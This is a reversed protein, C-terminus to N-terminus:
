QDEIPASPWIQQPYEVKPQEGSATKPQQAKPPVLQPGPKERPESQVRKYIAVGRTGYVQLLFAVFALYVLTNPNFNHNHLKAIDRLNKAYDKAEGQDLELEPAGVFAAVMEHISLVLAELNLSLDNQVQTGEKRTRNTSGAPRGRRPRGTAPDIPNPERRRRSDTDTGADVIDFPDITAIPTPGSNPETERQQEEVGSPSEEIGTRNEDTDRIIDVTALTAM